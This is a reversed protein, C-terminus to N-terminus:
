GNGQDVGLLRLMLGRKAAAGIEAVSRGNVKIELSLGAASLARHMGEALEARKAQGSWPQLLQFAAQLDPCELVIRNKDAHIELAQAM